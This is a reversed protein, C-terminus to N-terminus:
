IDSTRAELRDLRSDYDDVRTKIRDLQETLNDLKADIGILSSKLDLFIARVSMDTSAAELAEEGLQTSPTGRKWRFGGARRWRRCLRDRDSPALLAPPRVGRM